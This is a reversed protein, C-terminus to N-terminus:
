KLNELLKEINDLLDKMALKYGIKYGEKYGDEHGKKYAEYVSNRSPANKYRINEEVETMQQNM